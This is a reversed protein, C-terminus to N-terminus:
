PRAEVVAEHGGRRFRVQGVAPDASVLRWGALVDGVGIFRQKQGERVVVSPAGNWLDISEVHFPLSAGRRKAGAEGQIARRNDRSRRDLHALRTDLQQFQAKIAALAEANDPQSAAEIKGSLAAITAEMQTLRAHIDKSLAATDRQWPARALTHELQALREESAAGSGPTPQSAATAPLQEELSIGPTAIADGGGAPMSAPSAAGDIAGAVTETAPSDPDTGATDAEPAFVLAKMALGAGALMVLMVAVMLVKTKASNRVEDAGNDSNEASGRDLDPLGTAQDRDPHAESNM